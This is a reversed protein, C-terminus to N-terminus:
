MVAIIDFLMRVPRQSTHPTQEARASEFGLRQKWSGLCLNIENHKINHYFVFRMHMRISLSIRWWLPWFKNCVWKAAAGWSDVDNQGSHHRTNNDILTCVVSLWMRNTLYKESKIEIRSLFRSSMTQNNKNFYFCWNFNPSRSISHSCSNKWVKM